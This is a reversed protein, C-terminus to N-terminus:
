NALSMVYQKPTTGYKKKFASIFHSPTSYGVQASIESVNYRRDILQKRAYEMKYDFLFNFVSDGYIHKFGAKLKNLPLAIEMALDSLSPPEAMNQIIIQKATRIKEVDEESELFPCGATNEKEKGFFLSLMEYAKAKLYLKELSNGRNEEFMQNLVLLEAPTLPREAYYKKDKNSAELFPILGSVQSFFSHFVGIRVIFSIIKSKDSLQLNIPLEQDPDYLFMAHKSKLIREYYPGYKFTGKGEICFHLQIYDSKVSKFYGQKEAESDSLKIIEFGEDIYIEHQM